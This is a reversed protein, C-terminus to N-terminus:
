IVYVRNDGAQTVRFEGADTVRFRLINSYKVLVEEGVSEKAVFPVSITIVDRFSQSPLNLVANPITIQIHEEGIDGLILQINTAQELDYAYNTTTDTNADTMLAHFLDYSTDTGSRMYFNLNGTVERAGTYHGVTKQSRGFQKKNYYVNNNSIQVRGGILSLDYNILNRTLSISSYKTILCNPQVTWDSYDKDITPLGVDEEYDLATGRWTFNVIKNIDINITVSDIAVNSLKIIKDAVVHHIYITIPELAPLDATSGFECFFGSTSETISSSSGALGRWLLKQASTVNAGSDDLEAYTSFSFTTPGVEEIIPIVSRDGQPNMSERNANKVRGQRNYTFDSQILLKHAETNDDLILKIDRALFYAM